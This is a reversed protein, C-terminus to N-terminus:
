DSPRAPPPRSLPINAVAAAAGALLRTAVAEALHRVQRRVLQSVALAVPLILLAFLAIPPAVVLLAHPLRRSAGVIDTEVGTTTAGAAVGAVALVFIWICSM